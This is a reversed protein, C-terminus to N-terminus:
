SMTCANSVADADNMANAAFELAKALFDDDLKELEKKITMRFNWTTDGKWNPM